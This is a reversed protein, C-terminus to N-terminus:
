THFVHFDICTYMSRHCKIHGSLNNWGFNILLVDVCHIIYLVCIEVHLYATKAFGIEGSRTGYVFIKRSTQPCICSHINEKRSM